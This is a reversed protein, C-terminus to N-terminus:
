YSCGYILIRVSTDLNRWEIDNPNPAPWCAIDTQVKYRNQAEKAEKSNPDSPPPNEEPVQTFQSDFGRGLVSLGGASYASTNGRVVTHQTSMRTSDGRIPFPVNSTQGQQDRDQNRPSSTNPVLVGLVGGASATSEVLLPRKDDRPTALTARSGWFTTTARPKGGLNWANWANAQEREKRKRDRQWKYRQQMFKGKERARLTCGCYVFLAVTCLFDYVAGFLSFFAYLASGCGWVCDVCSFQGTTFYSGRRTFRPPNLVGGGGSGASNPSVASTQLNNAFNLNGDNEGVANQGNLKVGGSYYSDVYTQNAYVRAFPDEGYQGDTTPVEGYQGRPSQPALMRHVGERFGERLREVLPSRSSSSSSTGHTGSLIRSSVQAGSAGAPSSGAEPNMPTDERDIVDQLRPQSTARGSSGDRVVQATERAGGRRHHSGGRESRTGGCSEESEGGNEGGNLEGALGLEKRVVGHLEEVSNSRYANEYFDEIYKDPSYSMWSMEPVLYPNPKGTNERMIGAINSYSDERNYHNQQMHLTTGHTTTGQMQLDRGSISGLSSVRHEERAQKASQYFTDRPKYTRPSGLNNAVSSPSCCDVSDHELDTLKMDM